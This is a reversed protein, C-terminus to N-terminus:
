KQRIWGHIRPANSTTGVSAGAGDAPAGNSPSAGNRRGNPSPPGYALPPWSLDKIDRLSWPAMEQDAAATRASPAPAHPSSSPPALAVEAAVAIWGDAAAIRVGSRMRLASVRRRRPTRNM